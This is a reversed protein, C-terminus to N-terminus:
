GGVRLRELAQRLFVISDRADTEGRAQKDHSGAATMDLIEKFRSGADPMKEEIVENVGMDWMHEASQHQWSEPRFTPEGYKIFVVLYLREVALRISGWAEDFEGEELKREARALRESVRRNGEELISGQKRSHRISMTVYDARDCHYNSIDRAFTDNHTLLIVQFGEDVVQSLLDRAFTKFHEEDMSQVPDDFVLMRHGLLKARTVFAAIGLANVQSESFVRLADVELQDNSDDLSAKLEIEIPFGKGRPKPIHLKSFTSYRDKRLDAWVSEIGVNFLGRRSELFEQRYTILADRIKQLDKQARGKAREWRLDVALADVNEICEILSQRLRYNPDTSAESGVASELAIFCDRYSKAISPLGTLVECIYTCSEVFLDRKETTTPISIDDSLLTKGISVQKEMDTRQGNATRLHQAATRIRESANALAAEWDADSPPQPLTEEYDWLLERVVDALSTMAKKLEQSASNVSERIPEWSHITAVREASLTDIAPYACIPCDQSKVENKILGAEVLVKFARSVALNNDGISQMGKLVSQYHDWAEYIRNANIDVRESYTPEKTGESLPRRPRLRALIPFSSQRVKLQEDKLFPLVNESEKGQKPIAQFENLTISRLVGVIAEISDNGKSGKLSKHAKKSLDNQLTTGLENWLRLYRGGAPSVFDRSREDTVQAQRILETLEDLRLLREFYERRRKPDGQVFDRLTHQMLLPAVGALLRELEQKEEEQSLETADLFLTSNCTANTTTGYDEKLVRRLSFERANEEESMILFTANVWTDADHPRFQNTICQELERPNGSTNNERRSLSGTFLWELAEALSTKGSSNRGEVVIFDGSMDVASAMERFGRFHRAELTNLKIRSAMPATQNQASPPDFTLVTDLENLSGCFHKDTRAQFWEDLWLGTEEHLRGPFSAALEAGAGKNTM